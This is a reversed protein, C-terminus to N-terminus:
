TSVSRIAAYMRDIVTAVAAGRALALVTDAYKPDTAYIPGIAHVFADLDASERYAKAAAYYRGEAFLLARRTFCDALTSFKAFWDQVVYLTRGDHAQAPAAPTATRSDGQALFRALQAATFWEHTTVLERGYAGAYWKIGFCNNQGSFKTLWASEIICQACLLEAPIGTRQAAAFAAPAIRTELTHLQAPSPM